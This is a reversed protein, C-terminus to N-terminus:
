AAVMSVRSVDKRLSHILSPKLTHLNAYGKMQEAAYLFSGRQDKERPLSGQAKLPARNASVSAVEDNLSSFFLSLHQRLLIEESEGVKIFQM